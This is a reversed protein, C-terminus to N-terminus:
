LWRVSKHKNRGKKFLDLNTQYGIVLEHSGNIMGIGSTYMQYSYGVSIGHFNGGVLFTTSVNPSYGLGGYLKRGEYEYVVKCQFDERWTQWDTTVLLSPQLTLLSNKLKINGGSMLFYSQPFEVEYKEGATITPGLAHMVSLGAWLQPMTYYLGFNLDVSNGDVSSSPFAPDTSEELEVKSGDLVESLMGFSVGAALRGKLGVKVNYAYQINIKTTTFMGVKDSYLSLGAGHRPSLFYIPMDAGVYMTGPADDYGVMQMSYTAAVNLLGETGSVAPNYYSKLSTYDSFQVDMQARAAEKFVVLFM